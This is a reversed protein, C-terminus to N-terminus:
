NQFVLSGFILAYNGVVHVINMGLSVFMTQKTFGHVRIIASLSNIIAQLFITGGVIILYKSAHDLVDGQLNMAIMMNKSFIVFIVSM